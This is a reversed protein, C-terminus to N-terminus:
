DEPSASAAAKITVTVINTAGQCRKQDHDLVTTVFGEHAEGSDHDRHKDGPEEDGDQLDREIDLSSSFCSENGDKVDVQYRASASGANFIELRAVCGDGPAMRDPCGAGEFHLEVEDSEGNLLIKVDGTRESLVIARGASSPNEHRGSPRRHPDQGAAGAAAALVFAGVAFRWWAGRRRKPDEDGAM